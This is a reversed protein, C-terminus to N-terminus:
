NTWEEVNDDKGHLNSSFKIWNRLGNVFPSSVHFFIDYFTKRWFRAGSLRQFTKHFNAVGFGRAKRSPTLVNESNWNKEIKWTKKLFM